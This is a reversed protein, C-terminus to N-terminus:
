ECRAIDPLQSSSVAVDVVSWFASFDKPLRAIRVIWSSFQFDQHRRNLGTGAWWNKRM